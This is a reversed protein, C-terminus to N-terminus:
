AGVKIVRVSRGEQSVHTVSCALGDQSVCVSGPNRAAVTTVGLTPFACTVDREGGGWKVGANEQSPVTDTPRVATIAACLSPASTDQGDKTVSVNTLHPVRAMSVGLGPYVSTVNVDVGVQPVSVNVQDPVTAM